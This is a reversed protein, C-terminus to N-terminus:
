RIRALWAHLELVAAGQVPPIGHAFWHICAKLAWVDAASTNTIPFEPPVFVGTEGSTNENSITESYIIGKDFDHLKFSGTKLLRGKRSMASRGKFVRKTVVQNHADDVHQSIWM